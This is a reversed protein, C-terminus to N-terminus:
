FRFKGQKRDRAVELFYDDLGKQIAPDPSMANKSGELDNDDGCILRQNNRVGTLIRTASQMPTQAYDPPEVGGATFIATATTGPTASNVKINDDWLEYRLTLGLMNLAAKTAAYMSQLGMPSWAIGSITNVIQGGGQAKMYPIVHRIGYVAGYFNLDFAAKWDENTLETFSGSLGAGANNFLLDIRGGFFAAADALMATVSDELTVNCFIGIIKGPYAAELRASEKELNAKNFDAIAVKKAGNQLMTEALANGIGSAGGTVVATKGAFYNDFGYM